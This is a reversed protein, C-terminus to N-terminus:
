SLFSSYFDANQINFFSLVQLIDSMEYLTQVSPPDELDCSTLMKYVFCSSQLIKPNRYRALKMSNTVNSIAKPSQIDLIKEQV